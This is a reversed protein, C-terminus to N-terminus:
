WVHLNACKKGSKSFFVLQHNKESPISTNLCSHVSTSVLMTGSRCDGGWPRVVEKKAVSRSLGADQPWGGWPRVVEKKASSRSM